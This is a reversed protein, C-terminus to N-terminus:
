KAGKKIYQQIKLKEGKVWHKDEDAYYLYVCSAPATYDGAIEAKLDLNIQKIENPKFNTWHFVIYNEFIEYYDIQNTEMLAKLQKPHVSAGSPIGIIATTM